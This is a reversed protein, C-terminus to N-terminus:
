NESFSFFRSPWIDCSCINSSYSFISLPRFSSPPAPCNLIWSWNFESENRKLSIILSFVRFRLIRFTSFKVSASTFIYLQGEIEINLSILASQRSIILFQKGKPKNTIFSFVTFRAKFHHKWNETCSDLKWKTSYFSVKGFISETSFYKRFFPNKVAKM